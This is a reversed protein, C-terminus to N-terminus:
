GDHAPRSLWAPGGKLTAMQRDRLALCGSGGGQTVQPLTSAVTCFPSRTTRSEKAMRETLREQVDGAVAMGQTTGQAAGQPLLPIPPHRPTAPHSRQLDPDFGNGASDRFPKAHNAGRSM